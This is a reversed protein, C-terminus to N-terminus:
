GQKEWITKGRMFRNERGWGAWEGVLRGAKAEFSTDAKLLVTGTLNRYGPEDTSWYILVIVGVESYKGFLWYTKKTGPDFSHCFIECGETTLTTQEEPDPDYPKGTEDQWYVKWTGALAEASPGSRFSALARDDSPGFGSPAEAAQKREILVIVLVAFVLFFAWAGAAILGITTDGYVFAGMVLFSALLGFGFLLLYAPRTHLGAIVLQLTKERTGNTPPM